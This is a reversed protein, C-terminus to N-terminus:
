CYGLLPQFALEFINFIPTHCKQAYNRCESLTKFRKGGLRRIKKKRERDEFLWIHMKGNFRVFINHLVAKVIQQSSTTQWNLSYDGLSSPLFPNQHWLLKSLQRYLSRDLAIRIKYGFKNVTVQSKQGSRELVMARSAVTICSSSEKLFKM